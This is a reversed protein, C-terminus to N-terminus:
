GVDDGPGGEFRTRGETLKIIAPLIVISALLAYTVGIISFVGLERIGRFNALALSGFAFLTTMSTIMVARGTRTVALRLDRKEEEYYRHLLHVASDVGIGIVMPICIINLYHLDMNFLYVTGMMCLVALLVPLIALFARWSNEFHLVLYVMILATIILVSRALDQVLTRRLEEQIIPVGTVEVPGFMGSSLQDRFPQPITRQWEATQPPYILTVIRWRNDETKFMYRQTLDRLASNQELDLEDFTVPMRDRTLAARSASQFEGFRQFFRDFLQPSLGKEAALQDVLQRTLSLDQASMWDLQRRQTRESPFFFRLSDKAIIPYVQEAFLINRFLRDNEELAAQETPGTVIALVQNGPVSFHSGIRERLAVYDDSPQKLSDFDDDFQIFRAHYGMYACILLGALVTARPYATALFYFRRLGLSSMPRQTFVGVPGRGFHILIPPLVLIMAFMCCLVGMGVVMGLERFGQFQTIMMGFFGIATTLAGAIIAPGTEALATRVSDTNERGQRVEELYRNYVHVSFDIGQGILIASFIMTVQTIRGIVLGMLGLTWVMGIALPIGVFLLAEPRRFAFFFLALVAILSAISTRFFDQRILRQDTITEYHSGFFRIDIKPGPVTSEPDWRPERIYIGRRTGELFSQFYGAFELDSAPRVPRVLVLLMQGDQSIFYNDRINVKLPGSMLRLRELLVSSINLPDDTSNSGEGLSLNRLREGLREMSDTLGEPSLRQELKIRDEDTLLAVARADGEPTGVELTDGSVRYVVRRIFRRDDLAIAVERAAEKLADEQGAERAELVVIMFDFSGIDARALRTIRAVESGEPLLQSIDMEITIRQISFVSAVTLLLAFVLCWNPYRSVFTALHRISFRFMHRPPPGVPWQPHKPTEEPPPDGLHGSAGADPENEPNQNPPMM